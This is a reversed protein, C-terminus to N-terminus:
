YELQRLAARWCVYVLVICVLLAVLYLGLHTIDRPSRTVARVAPVPDKEGGALGIVLAVSFVTFVSGIAWRLIGSGAGAGHDVEVFGAADRAAIDMGM